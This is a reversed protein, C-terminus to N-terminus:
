MLTCSTSPMDSVAAAASAASKRGACRGQVSSKPLFVQSATSARSIVNAWISRLFLVHFSISAIYSPLSKRHRCTFFRRHQPKREPRPRILRAARIKHAVVRRESVSTPPCRPSPSACRSAARRWLSSSGTDTRVYVPVPASLRRCRKLKLGRATSTKAASLPAAPVRARIRATRPRSPPRAPCGPAKRDGARLGGDQLLSCRLRAATRRRQIFAAHRIHNDREPSARVSFFAGDHPRRLLPRSRM